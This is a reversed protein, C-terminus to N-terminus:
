NIRVIGASASLSGGGKLDLSASAEVTIKPAKLTLSQTAEISISGTKADLTITNAKDTSRSDAVVHGREDAVLVFRVDPDVRAATEVLAQLYTFNREFLAAQGIAVRGRDGLRLGRGLQGLLLLRGAARRSSRFM